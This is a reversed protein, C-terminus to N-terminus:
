DPVGAKCTLMNGSAASEHFAQMIDLVHYALEGQPRFSGGRMLATAMDAVGIGRSNEAFGHTLPMASWEAAGARKLMPVGGFTNPDPCRLTGESGYIEIWPMQHTWVDFTM